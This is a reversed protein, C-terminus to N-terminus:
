FKDAITMGHPYEILAKVDYPRNEQKAIVVGRLDKSEVPGEPFDMESYRLRLNKGSGALVGFVPQGDLMAEVVHGPEPKRSDMVAHDGPKLLGSLGRTAVKRGWAKGVPKITITVTSLIYVGTPNKADYERADHDNAIVAIPLGKGFEVPMTGAVVRERQIDHLASELVDFADDRHPKTTGKLYKSIFNYPLGTRRGLERFSAGLSKRLEEIESAKPHIPHPM